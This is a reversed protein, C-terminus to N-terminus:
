KVTNKAANINIAVGIGLMTWFVPATAVCSDNTLGAIMYGISGLFIGAGLIEQFGFKNIGAYVKICQVLYMSYFTLFAILSLLGTQVAIQLYLSHPKTILQDNITTNSKAVYDTQPFEVVFTDPGSGLIINDKILPLTRSWIYGRSTLFREYGKFGISKANIIEDYKGYINIYTYKNTEVNKGFCWKNKGINVYLGYEGFVEISVKDLAKNNFTYIENQADYKLELNNSDSIIIEEGEDAGNIKSVKFVYEKYSIEIDEENVTINKLDYSRKQVFIGNKIRNILMNDSIHNSVALIILFLTIFVAYYIKNIKIRKRFIVFALILVVLLTIIGTKSGSGVLMVLMLVDVALATIKLIKNSEGLVYATLVPIILVAFVGVYNPNYLTMYVKNLTSDGFNFNLNGRYQALENPIIIRQLFDTTFLDHGILQSFGIVCMVITSFLLSYILVKLDKEGGIVSYSYYLVILYSLLIWVSEYQEISGNFAMNKNDSFISSMLSLVGYVGLPIFIKIGKRDSTFFRGIIILLMIVAVVMLFNGRSYLFADASKYANYFWSYKYMDTPIINLKIILPVIALILCIPLLLYNIKEKNM